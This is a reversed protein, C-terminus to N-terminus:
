EMTSYVPQQQVGVEMTYSASGDAPTIVYEYLIVPTRYLVVQNKTGDNEFSISYEHSLEDEYSWEWDHTYSAETHFQLASSGISFSAYAGISAMKTKSTVTGKGSVKGYLTEGINGNYYNDQLEGFYPAAQLVALIDVNSYTYKKSKFTFVDTDKDADVAAIALCPFDSMGVHRVLENSTSDFYSGPTCIGTSSDKNQEKGSMNVRYFYRNFSQQKYGTTYLVQEIGLDNEDFNGAVCGDVWTDSIIYGDIGKDSSQCVKATYDKKWSENEFKWFVGDLFVQEADNRGNVAACTLAPLPHVNDDKDFGANVFNCMDMVNGGSPILTEVEENPDYKLTVLMYKKNSGSKDGDPGDNDSYVGAVVVEPFGDFDIDGAAVSAYRMYVSCTDKDMVYKNMQQPKKNEVKYCAFVSSRQQLKKGDSDDHINSYSGVLLIEDKGDRNIDSTEISMNITARATKGNNTFKGAMDAGTNGMFSRVPINDSIPSLTIGDLIMIYPDGRKPVYVAIDEDGDGDFDGAKLTFYNKYASYKELQNDRLWDNDDGSGLSFTKRLEQGKGSASYRAVVLQPDKGLSAGVLAVMNDRGTGYPDYGDVNVYKVDAAGSATRSQMFGNNNRNSDPGVYYGKIDSSKTYNYTEANRNKGSSRYWLFAEMKENFASYGSGYPNEGDNANFSSPTTLNFGYKDKGSNDANSNDAQTVAQGPPEDALVRVPNGVGPFMGIVMSISLMAAMWKKGWKRNM